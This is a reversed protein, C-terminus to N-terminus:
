YIIIKNKKNREYLVFERELELNKKSYLNFPYKKPNEADKKLNRRYSYFGALVLFLLSITVRGVVITPYYNTKLPAHYFFDPILKSYFYDSVKKQLFADKCGTNSVLNLSKLLTFHLNEFKGHFYTNM